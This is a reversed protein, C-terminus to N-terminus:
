IDTWNRIEFCYKQEDIDARFSRSTVSQDKTLFAVMGRLIREIENFQSLTFLEPVLDKFTKRSMDLEKNSVNRKALERKELYTYLRDAYHNKLALKIQPIAESELCGGAESAKIAVDNILQNLDRTWKELFMRDLIDMRRIMEKSVSDPSNQQRMIYPADIVRTKGYALATLALATECFILDCCDNKSIFGWADILTKTRYVSYHMINTCHSWEIIRELPNDSDFSKWITHKRDFYVLGISIAQGYLPNADEGPFPELKFDIHQGRCASYGSHSELFTVSEHLGEVVPFCDNDIMSVYPTRVESLVSVMKQYYHSYSEDFPYKIYRYDINSFNGALSLANSVQEDDGGDAIILKFPFKSKDLYEMIRFTFEPRGKLPLVLTLLENVNAM